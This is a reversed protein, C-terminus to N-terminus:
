GSTSTNQERKWRAEWTNGAFGTYRGHARKTRQFPTEMPFPQVGMPIPQGSPLVNQYLDVWEATMTSIAVRTPPPPRDLTDKYWGRMCIWAEQILHMNSTLVSEIKYGVDAERQYRDEQIIAKIVRILARSNWQEGSRREAIRTNVLRWTDPLIWAQRLYKSWPPKHIDGLDGCVHQRGRGPDDADPHTFAQTEWYITLACCARSWPPMGPGILPGHQVTHGTGGREPDSSPRHGPHLLDPIM